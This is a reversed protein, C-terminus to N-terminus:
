PEVTVTTVYDRDYKTIDLGHGTGNHAVANVTTVYGEGYKISDQGHSIGNLDVDNVTTGVDEGYKMDQRHSTGNPAVANVFYLATLGKSIKDERNPQEFFIAAEESSYSGPPTAYTEASASNVYYSETIDQEDSTGNPVKSNVYIPNSVAAAYNESIKGNRYPQEFFISDVEESSYSGSPTAYIECLANKRLVRLPVNNHLTVFLHWRNRILKSRAIDCHM